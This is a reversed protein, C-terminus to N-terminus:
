LTGSIGFIKPISYLNIPDYNLTKLVSLCIKM